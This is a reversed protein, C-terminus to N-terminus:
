EEEPTPSCYLREEDLNDVAEIWIKITPALIKQECMIHTAKDRNTTIGFIQGERRIAYYDM